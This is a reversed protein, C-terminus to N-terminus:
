GIPSPGADVAIGLPALAAKATVYIRREEPTLQITEAGEKAIEKAIPVGKEKTEEITAARIRGRGVVRADVIFSDYKKKILTPPTGPIHPVKPDQILAKV